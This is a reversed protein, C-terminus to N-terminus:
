NISLLNNTLKGYRIDPIMYLQQIVSNLYCTCGFNRLGAYGFSSRLGINSDFEQHQLHSTKREIEDM